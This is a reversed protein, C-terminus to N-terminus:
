TVTRSGLWCQSSRALSCTPSSSSSVQWPWSLLWCITTLSPRLRPSSILKSPYKSALTSLATISMTTWRQARWGRGRKPRAPHRSHSSPSSLWTSPAIPFVIRCCSNRFYLYPYRSIMPTTNISSTKISSTPPPCSFWWTESRTRSTAGLCAKWSRLTMRFLYPINSKSSTPTPRGWARSLSTSSQLTSSGLSMDSIELQSSWTALVKTLKSRWHSGDWLQSSPLSTSIPPPSSKPSSSPMRSGRWASRGWSLRNGIRWGMWLNIMYLRPQATDAANSSM